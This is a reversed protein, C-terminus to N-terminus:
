RGRAGMPATLSVRRPLRARAAMLASLADHADLARQAEIADRLRQLHLHIHDHM